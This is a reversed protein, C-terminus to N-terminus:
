RRAGLVKFVSGFVVSVGVVISLLRLIGRRKRRRREDEVSVPRSYPTGSNLMLDNLKAAWQKLPPYRSSM